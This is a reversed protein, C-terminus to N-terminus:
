PLLPPAWCRGGSGPHGAPGPTPHQPQLALSWRGHSGMPQPHGGTLPCAAGTRSGGGLLGAPPEPPAHGRQTSCHTLTGRSPTRQWLAPMGAVPRGGSPPPWIRVGWGGMKAPAQNSRSVQPNGRTIPQAGRQRQPFPRQPLADGWVRCCHPPHPPSWPPPSLQPCGTVGGHWGASGPQAEMLRPTSMQSSHQLTCRLRPRWMEMTLCRRWLGQGAVRSWTPAPGAPVHPVCVCLSGGQVWQARGRGRLHHVGQRAVPGVGDPLVRQQVRGLHLAPAPLCVGLVFHLLHGGRQPSPTQARRAGRVECGAGGGVGLGVLDSNMRALYWISAKTWLSGQRSSSPTM